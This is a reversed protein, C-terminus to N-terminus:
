GQLACVKGEASFSGERDGIVAEGAGEALVLLCYRVDQLHGGEGHFRWILDAYARVGGVGRGARAPAKRVGVGASLLFGCVKEHATPYRRYRARVESIKM